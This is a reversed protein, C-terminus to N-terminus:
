VHNLLMMENPHPKLYVQDALYPVAYKRVYHRILTVPVILPLRGERYEEIMQVLEARDPADLQGTFYGAVHYLTNAHSKPTPVRAMLATFRELYRRALAATDSGKRAAGLLHGLERLGAQSHAMLVYKHEEHFRFLRARTLGADELALWRSYAFVRTVFNERLRPDGLRGEEETPLAPMLDIVAAAFLGRGNKNPMAADGYVRVREMGCSPSDKKFVYGVLRQSEIQKARRLSYERMKTTHDSGSKPAVLRVQSGSQVLRLSERPTGLGIEMEPCVAVFDFWAGLTGVVYDNNKHGGDFRVNEGLLCQSVGIRMRAATM